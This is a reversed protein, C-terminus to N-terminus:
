KASERRIIDRLVTDIVPSINYRSIIENSLNIANERSNLRCSPLVMLVVMLLAIVMIVYRM